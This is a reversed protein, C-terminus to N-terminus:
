EVLRGMPLPWPAGERANVWAALVFQLALLGPQAVFWLLLAVAGWVPERLSWAVLGVGTLLLLVGLTQQLRALSSHSASRSM